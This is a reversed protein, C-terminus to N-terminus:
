LPTISLTVLFNLKARALPAVGKRTVYPVISLRISLFCISALLISTLVSLSDSPEHCSTLIRFLICCLVETTTSAFTEKYDVGYRQKFKVGNPKVKKTTEAAHSVSKWTENERLAEFEAEGV